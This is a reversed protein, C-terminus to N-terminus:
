WREQTGQIEAEECGLCDGQGGCICVAYGDDSPRRSIESALSKNIPTQSTQTM